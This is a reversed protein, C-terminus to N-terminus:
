TPAFTGFLLRLATLSDGRIVLNPVLGAPPITDREYRLLVVWVIALLLVGAGILLGAYSLTLKLRVSLGPARHMPTRISAIASGRWPRLSRLNAWGGACRRCRLVFRM